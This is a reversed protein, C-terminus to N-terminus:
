FHHKIVCIVATSYNLCYIITITHHERGRKYCTRRRQRSEPLVPVLWSWLGSWLLVRAFVGSIANVWCVKPRFAHSSQLPLTPLPALSATPCQAALMFELTLAPVSGWPSTGKGACPKAAPSQDTIQGLHSIHTNLSAKKGRNPAVFSASHFSCAKQGKKRLQRHLKILTGRHFPSKWLYYVAWEITIYISFRM